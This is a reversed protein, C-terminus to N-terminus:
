WINHDRKSGVPDRFGVATNQLQFSYDMVRLDSGVVEPM